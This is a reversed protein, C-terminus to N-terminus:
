PNSRPSKPWTFSFITGEGPRSTLWASGGRHEVLKRVVSLGIGTGEVKDRAALTQFIQWVRDHYEHPIGPGDDTVSIRLFGDGTDAASIDVRPEPKTNYKLANSILNLLVQQLPVRETEILPVAASVTIRASAPASALEITEEVLAKLDVPVAGDSTRGARAYSLIGEILANMRQVRGKLLQIHERSDGTLRDALDEEIWETLTAIGRLPAKLDHSAVYAFQDLERNSQELVLTLRALESAKQEAEWRARVQTTVDVAHVMIAHTTGEVTKLPQYVFNVYLEEPAAGAQRVLWVPMERASFPTGEAYVADLLEFFGQGEIEPLARRVPMNLVDRGGILESYLPNVVTFVHDRGELVAIAAPAQMFVEHLREQERTTQQLAADRESLLRELREAQELSAREYVELLQELAAIEARASALADLTAATM